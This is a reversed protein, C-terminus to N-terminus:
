SECAAASFYNINTCAPFLMLSDDAVEDILDKANCNTAGYADSLTKVNSLDVAQAGVEFPVDFDDYGGSGSFGLPPLLSCSATDDERSEDDANSGMGLKLERFGISSLSDGLGEDHVDTDDDLLSGIELMDEFLTSHVDLTVPDKSKLSFQPTPPLLTRSKKAAPRREGRQVTSKQPRKKAAKTGKQAHSSKPAYRYGPNSAEHAEKEAQQKEFYSEADEPKVLNLWVWERSIFKSITNNPISHVKSWDGNSNPFLHLSELWLDGAITAAQKKSSKLMKKARKHSSRIEHPCAYTKKAFAKLAAILEENSKNAFELTLSSRRTKAFIFFANSPRKVPQTSM